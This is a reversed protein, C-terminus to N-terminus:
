SAYRLWYRLLIALLTPIMDEVKLKRHLLRYNEISTSCLSSLALDTSREGDAGCQERLVRPNYVTVRSPLMLFYAVKKHTRVFLRCDVRLWRLFKTAEAPLLPCLVPASSLFSSDFLVVNWGCTLLHDECYQDFDVLRNLRPHEGDAGVHLTGRSM